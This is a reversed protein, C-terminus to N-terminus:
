FLLLVIGQLLGIIGGLLYGLRAIMKLEKKSISFIMAELESLSFTRVQQSVLQELNLANLLDHVHGALYAACRDALRPIWDNRLSRLLAPPLEAWTLGALQDFFDPILTKWLFDTAVLSSGVPLPSSSIPQEWLRRLEATIWDTLGQKLVPSKLMNIGGPVFHRSVTSKGAIKLVMEGIFGQQRIFDTIAQGALRRGASSELYHKLDNLLLASVDPVKGELRTLVDPSFFSSLPVERYRSLFIEIFRQDLHCFDTRMKQKVAGQGSTFFTIIRDSGATKQQLKDLLVQTLQRILVPDQFKKRLVDATLLHDIVMKGLRDAIEERRKPILGPTFPLRWKGIYIATFPHFLMKIALINTLGGVLAGIVTPILIQYLISVLLGNGGCSEADM